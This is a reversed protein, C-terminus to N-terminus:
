SKQSVAVSIEMVAVHTQMGMLLSYPREEGVWWCDANTIKNNNNFRGM